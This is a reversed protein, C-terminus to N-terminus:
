ITIEQSNELGSSFGSSRDSGTREQRTARADPFEYVEGGKSEVKKLFDSILTCKDNLRPSYLLNIGTLGDKGPKEDATATSAGLQRVIGHVADTPVRVRATLYEDPRIRYGFTQLASYETQRHHKLEWARDDVLQRDLRAKQAAAEALRTAEVAQAIQESLPRADPGGPRLSADFRADTRGDVLYLKGEAVRKYQYGKVLMNDYYQAESKLPIALSEAQAKLARERAAEWLEKGCAVVKPPLTGQFAHLALEDLKAAHRKSADAETAKAQTLERTLDRVTSQENSLKLELIVVDTALGVKHKKEKEVWERSRESAENGGAAAVVIQGALALKANAEERLRDLAANIQNETESRWTGWTMFNKPPSDLAFRENTVPGLSPTIETATKELLGYMEGMTKHHARSGAIGRQFGHPEMVESFDTQLQALRRPTFLDRASRRAPADAPLQESLEKPNTEGNRGGGAGVLPVVFAQFHPTKEDQHLVLSILNKGWEKRAFEVVDKAWSSDRMDAARGPHPATKPARQWVEAEPGGTLLVEVCLTANARPLGVGAEKTRADLLDLIPQGTLNVYEYNLGRRAEDANPTEKTRENHQARQVLGSRTKIKEVRIITYEKM